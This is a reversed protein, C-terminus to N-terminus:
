TLNNKWDNNQYISAIKRYTNKKLMSIQQCDAGIEKDYFDDANEDDHPMHMDRGSCKSVELGLDIFINNDM